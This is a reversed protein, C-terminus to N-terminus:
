NCKCVKKELIWKNPRLLYSLILDGHNYTIEALRRLMAYRLKCKLHLGGIELRRATNSCKLPM